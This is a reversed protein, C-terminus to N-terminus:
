LVQVMFRVRVRVRVRLGRHREPHVTMLRFQGAQGRTGPRVFEQQDKVSVNSKSAPWIPARKDDRALLWPM